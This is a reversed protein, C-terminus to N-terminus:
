VKTFKFLFGYASDRKGKCCQSIYTTNRRSGLIEEAADAFTEFEKIFVGDITYQSVKKAGNRNHLSIPVIPETDTIYRWIFNYAHKINHKCVDTITSSCLRSDIELTRCADAISKHQAVFTGDLNYQNVPIINKNSGIDYAHQATESKSAWELNDVHNNTKDGDIHNVCEENDPNPIFQTAVLRHIAHNKGGLVVHAYGGNDRNGMVLKYKKNYVRGDRHIMYNPYLQIEEFEKLEEDTLVQKPDVYKFHYKQEDTSKTRGSLVPGINKASINLDIAAERISNYMKVPTIHDQEYLIIQKGNSKREEKTHAHKINDSHTCWALNVVCNNTKDLDIHNIYKEDENESKPLFMFAVIRHVLLTKHMDGNYLKCKMYGDLGKSPNLIKNTKCNRIRGLDSVEYNSYEVTDMIIKKWNETMINIDNKM